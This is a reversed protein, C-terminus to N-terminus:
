DAARRLLGASLYAVRNARLNQYWQARPGFGSAVVFRGPGRERVERLVYRPAGSRRGRLEIMWLRPGRVWRLGRRVWGIPLRLLRRTRLLRAMLPGAAPAPTM